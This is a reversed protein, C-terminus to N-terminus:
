CIGAQFAMPPYPNPMVKASCFHKGDEHRHFALNDLGLWVSISGAPRGDQVPLVRVCGDAQTIVEGTFTKGNPLAVIIQDDQQLNATTM